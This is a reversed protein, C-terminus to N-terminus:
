ATAGNNMPQSVLTGRLDYNERITNVANEFNRMYASARDVSAPSEVMKSFARSCAYDVVMPVYVDAIPLTSDMGLEPPVRAYALRVHGAGDSPPYVDYRAPDTISSCFRKIVLQPTTARWDPDEADLQPREIRRVASGPTQGDDGMNCLVELAMWGDNPIKQMSGESLAVVQTTAYAFPLQSCVARVGDVVWTLLERDSWQKGGAITDRLLPRIRDTVLGSILM